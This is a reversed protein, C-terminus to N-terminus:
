RAVINEFDTCKYESIYVTERKALCKGAQRWFNEGPLIEQSKKSRANQVSVIAVIFM